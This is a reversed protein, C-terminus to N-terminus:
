TKRGIGLCTKQRNQLYIAFVSRYRLFVGKSRAGSKVFEFLAGM